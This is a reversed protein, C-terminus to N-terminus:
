EKKEKNKNILGITILIAGLALLIRYNDSYYYHVVPDICKFSGRM